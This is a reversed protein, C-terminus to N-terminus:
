VVTRELDVFDFATSGCWCFLGLRRLVFVGRKGVVFVAVFVCAACGQACLLWGVLSVCLCRGRRVKCFDRYFMKALPKELFVPVCSFPVLAKTLAEEEEPEIGDAYRVFGVRTIRMDIDATHLSLLSEYDWEVRWTGDEDQIRPNVFRIPTHCTLYRPHIPCWKMRGYRPPSRADEGFALVYLLICARDRRYLLM